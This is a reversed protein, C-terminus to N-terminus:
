LKEILVISSFDVGNVYLFVLSISLNKPYERSMVSLIMFLENSLFSEKSSCSIWCSRASEVVNDSDCFSRSVAGINQIYM